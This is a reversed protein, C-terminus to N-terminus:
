PRGNMADEFSLNQGTPGRFTIKAPWTTEIEGLLKRALPKWDTDPKLSLVSLRMGKDALPSNVRALWPEDYVNINVGADNCLDVGRWNIRGDRVQEDRRISLENAQAFDAFTQELKKWDDAPVKLDAHVQPQASTRTDSFLGHCSRDRVVLPLVFVSSTLLAAASVVSWSLRASGSRQTTAWFALGGILGLLGTLGVLRAYQLWGALTPVGNVVTPQGDSSASQVGIMSLLALAGIPIAAVVFGGLACAVIGARSRGRRVLLFLPLGLLLAHAIAVTFTTMTLNLGQTVVLINIPEEIQLLHPIVFALTAAFSAFVAGALLRMVRQSRMELSM